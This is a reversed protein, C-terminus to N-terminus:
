FFIVLCLIKGLIGGNQCVRVCMCLNNVCMGQPCETCPTGITYPKDYNMQAGVYNCYAYFQTGCRAAGCGVRSTAKNVIQTYHGVVGGHGGGYRFDKM